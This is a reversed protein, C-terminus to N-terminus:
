SFAFSLPDASVLVGLHTPFGLEPGQSWGQCCGWGPSPAAPSVERRSAQLQWALCCELKAFELERVKKDSGDGSYCCICLSVTLHTPHM